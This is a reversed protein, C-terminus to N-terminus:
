RGWAMDGLKAVWGPEPSSAKKILGMQAMRRELFEVVERMSQYRDRQKKEGCVAIFPHFWGPVKYNVSELPPVAERLHAVAIEHYAGEKFPPKGAVLEYAIMGLAYIDSREDLQAMRTFQEPSMYYPTGITEGTKTITMGLEMDRALGFDLIKVEGYSTLMINAPKLDRHIVSANHACELGLAIERLIHLVEEFPLPGFVNSIRESLPVGDIYEMAIFCSDSSIIGFDYVKIINPHDLKSLVAYETNIRKVLNDSDEHDGWVVVKLALSEGSPVKSDTGMDRVKFVAGQGGVGLREEVEYRKAIITGPELNLM